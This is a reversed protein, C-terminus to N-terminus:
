KRGIFSPRPEAGALKLIDETPFGQHLRRYWYYNRMIFAVYNRTERYPILDIFLLPETAPYRDVWNVVRHPGANYAALALHVQGNVAELLQSFYKAGVQVNFEPDLLDKRESSVRRGTTPLIQLLGQADARSIARPNFMSEQRAISLLLYPDVGSSFKQFLPFYARPFYLELSRRSILEPHATLIRSLLGINAHFDSQGEKVEALYLRVSPEASESDAVAWDLVRKASEKFGYHHLWQSQELLTHLEPRLEPPTARVPVERVLLDGPDEGEALQALVTHFAFPFLRKLRDFAKKAAVRENRKGHAYYRWYLSRASAISDKSTAKGFYVSAKKWEGAAVYFLGARTVFNEYHQSASSLCDAGKSYLRAVELSTARQPMDTELVAALAIAGNNPCAKEALAKVKLREKQLFSASKLGRILDAPAAYRLARWNKIGNGRFIPTVSTARRSATRTKKGAPGRKGSQSIRLIAPCFPDVTPSQRCSDRMASSESQSLRGRLYDDFAQASRELSDDTIVPNTIAVRPPPGSTTACASLLLVGSIGNIFRWYKKSNLKTKKM